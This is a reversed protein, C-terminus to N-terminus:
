KALQVVMGHVVLWLGVGLLLLDIVRDRHSEIWRRVADLWVTTREPRLGSLISRPSSLSASPPSCPEAHCRPHIV